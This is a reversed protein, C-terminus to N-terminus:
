CMAVAPDVFPTGTLSGSTAGNNYFADASVYYVGSWPSSAIRYWWTNGDAVRFGQLRCAIQVTAYAPITPGQVGGANTYNTWTNAAGGTTEAWTQPQPPPPQPQPQAACTAAVGNDDPLQDLISSPLVDPGPAGQAKLCSYTASDPIWHRHLNPMVLWATKQPKTDGDWQVIHGVYQQLNPGPPPQPQPPPPQPSPRHLYADARMKPRLDYNGRGDGNYEAITVLGNTAVASVIAVHGFRNQPTGGWWAIDGVSPSATVQLGAHGAYQKWDKADGVNRPFGFSSWTLGMFWAVFDTCNRYAFLRASFLRWTGGQLYGWDYNRCLGDRLGTWKCRAGDDPYGGGGKGALKKGTRVPLPPRSTTKARM